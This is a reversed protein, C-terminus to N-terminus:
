RGKSEAVSAATAPVPKGDLIVTGTVKGNPGDGSAIDNSSIAYQELHDPTEGARFSARKIVMEGPAFPSSTLSLDPNSMIEEVPVPVKPM